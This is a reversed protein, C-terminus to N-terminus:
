VWLAMLIEDVRRGRIVVEEKLRGEEAFGMKRYLALARENSAFVGLKLKQVGVARAWVIGAQLMAEGLGFGRFEPLLAVGLEATHANKSWRGRAFNAGGVPRGEVEAVLWLGHQPDADRFQVQVEEVTRTSRESMVLDGEAAITGFNRIFEDADEPEARRIRASRGDRLRFM